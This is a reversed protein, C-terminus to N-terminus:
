KCICQGHYLGYPHHHHDIETGSSFYYCYDQFLMCLLFGVQVHFVYYSYVTMANSDTFFIFPLVLSASVQYVYLVSVDRFRHCYSEM